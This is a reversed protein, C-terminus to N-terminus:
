LIDKNEGLAPTNQEDGPGQQKSFSSLEAAAQLCLMLGQRPVSTHAASGFAPSATGCGEVAALELIRSYLSM